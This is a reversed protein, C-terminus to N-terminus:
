KPRGRWIMMQTLREQQRGWDLRGLSQELERVYDLHRRFGRAFMYRYNNGVQMVTHVQFETVRGWPGPGELLMAEGCLDAAGIVTIVASSLRVFGYRSELVLATVNESERAGRKCDVSPRLAERARITVWEPVIMRYVLANEGYYRLVENDRWPTPLESLSLVKRGSEKALRNADPSLVNVGAVEHLLFGAVANLIFQYLESPYDASTAALRSRRGDDLSLYFASIAASGPNLPVQLFSGKMQSFVLPFNIMIQRDERRAVLFVMVYTTTIGLGAVVAVTFITRNPLYLAAFLIGAFLNVITSGAIAIVIFSLAERRRLDFDSDV